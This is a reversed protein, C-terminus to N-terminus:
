MIYVNGNYGRVGDSQWLGGGERGRGFLCKVIIIIANEKVDKVEAM